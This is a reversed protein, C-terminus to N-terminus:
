NGVATEQKGSGGDSFRELLGMLKYKRGHRVRLDRLYAQWEDERGATQYAARAKELWGVADHYYKSQGADIIREAQRRAVQIVWNPRHEIVADMVRELLDLDYGGDKDVATIADDWLSEHLFIDVQAPPHYATHRFYDLLEKRLESWREGALEQVRLYASLSPDAQCAAMAAELALETEGMGRALECLWSALAGKSGDLSLGHKAVRMAATLEGQERLAKALALYQDPTRLYQLGEDVAEQVRGLRALMLVYRDLQGEAKALYLYEQYREQKELVDLRAIALDDAYWPAEGEWAGLETIEGQLVRQLPPYDWGQEAAARAAEFAEAVGYNNLDSWWQALKRRWQGREAPSLDTTLLAATWAAGLEWFFESVYGDSDDLYIWGAIYEETIAELLALANRGDGVDIFDHVRNLLQRVQDVVEDIHWYAESRRMHDLSRLIARVQRRVPAPDVPIRRPDSAPVSGSRLLTVQSEIANALGPDREVLHRLLGHLQEPSLDALLEELTPRNEIMEPEHLCALLTAVIHKCWGGWNYPCSCSADIAGGEDFTIQVQYPVYQSGEVEALLVNGRLVLSTVAGQRYYNKGRRFSEATAKQRIAAESLAPITM